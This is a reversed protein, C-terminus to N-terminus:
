WAKGLVVKVMTDGLESAVTEDIERWTDCAENFLRIAAKKYSGAPNLSGEFKDRLTAKITAIEKKTEKKM